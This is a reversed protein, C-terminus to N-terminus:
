KARWEINIIHADYGGHRKFIPIAQFPILMKGNKGWEKGWSNMGELYEINQNYGYLIYEHGGDIGNWCYIKRLRGENDTDDWKSYWPSGIAVLNNDALASLIGDIGDVLRTYSLLPRKKAEIFLSEEPAMPNFQEEYRWLSEPLCGNQLCWELALRPETGCDQNVYGGIYRGGYYIWRPSEWEEFVGLQIAKGTIIGGIGHGVCSGQQGQNRVPPLYESLGVVDPLEVAKRTQFLYDREDRRDKIYGYNRDIM